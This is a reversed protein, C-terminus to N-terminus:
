KTRLLTNIIAQKWLLIGSVVLIPLVLVKVILLFGPVQEQIPSTISTGVLCGALIHVWRPVMRKYMMKGEGTIPFLEYQGM